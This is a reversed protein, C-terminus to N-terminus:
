LYILERDSALLPEAGTETILMSDEFYVGGFGLECVEMDMNVIMGAELAFDPFGGGSTPLEIHDLGLGHVFAHRFGPLGGARVADIAMGRLAATRVGPGMADYAAAIGSSIANWYRVLKASPEGLIAPGSCTRM